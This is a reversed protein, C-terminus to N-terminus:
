LALLISGAGDLSSVPSDTGRRGTLSTLDAEVHEMRKPQGHRKCGKLYQKVRSDVTDKLLM